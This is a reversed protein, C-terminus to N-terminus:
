FTYNIDIENLKNNEIKFSSNLFGTFDKYIQYSDGLSSPMAVPFFKDSM